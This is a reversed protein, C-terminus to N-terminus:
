IATLMIEDLVKLNLKYFKQSRVKTSILLEPPVNSLLKKVSGYSCEFLKVLDQTSLGNESFLAARILLEYLRKMNKKSAQPLHLVFDEYINLSKIKRDLTEKLEKEAEYIMNLMMILFPTLDGLNRPDNCTEFAKYYKSKNEIIVESLRYSLLYYPNDALCYSVIFRGLRGNGDYFPHIYEILYHFLCIRYLKEIKSDNLFNLAKTLLEIIRSEPYVGTHVVKDTISRITTEDKRFIKGDPAHHKNEAIVEPLVIEDYLKRIDECTKLEVTENTMLKFYQNVLGMFRLQKGKAQSQNSIEDLVEGIEKRSSHVGEMDNTLVIEDILCKMAYQKLAIQPLSPLIRTIETDMRLIDYILNTVEPYQVFFAQKGSIEFDLKISTPSNFRENYVKKYEERDIYYLKRLEEYAM